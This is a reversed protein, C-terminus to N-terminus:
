PQSRTDGSKLEAALAPGILCGVHGYGEGINAGDGHIPYSAVDIVLGTRCRMAARPTVSIISSIMKITMIEARSNANKRYQIASGLSTGIRKSRLCAVVM